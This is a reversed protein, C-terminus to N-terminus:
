LQELPTIEFKEKRNNGDPGKGSIWRMPMYKMSRSINISKYSVVFTIKAM